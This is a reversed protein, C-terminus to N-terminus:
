PSIKSGWNKHEKKHCKRCLTIGNKFEIDIIEPQKILWMYKEDNNVFSLNTEKLLEKILTVIPIIHHADIKEISGCKICKYNDRKYVNKYWNVNRHIYGKVRKTLSTVGGKWGTANIGIKNKRSISMKNKTEISHKKKYMGNNEKSIDRDKIAQKYKNSNKIKNSLEIKKNKDWYEKTQQPKQSIKCACSTCYDKDKSKLRKRSRKVNKFTREFETLCNDCICNLIDLEGYNKINNQSIM